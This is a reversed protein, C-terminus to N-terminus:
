FTYDFGIKFINKLRVSYSFSDIITGSYIRYESLPHYYSFLIGLQKNMKYGLSINIFFLTERTIDITHSMGHGEGFNYHFSAGGIAYFRNFYYRLYFGYEIGTYYEGGLIFGPRFELCLNNSLYARGSLFLSAPYINTLSSDTKTVSLYKLNSNVITVETLFGIKFSTSKTQTDSEQSYITSFGLLILIWLVKFFKMLSESQTFLQVLEEFIYKEYFFDLLLKM